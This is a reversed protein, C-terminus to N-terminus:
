SGIEESVWDVSLKKNPFDFALGILFIKKGFSLFKEYYRKKHIQALAVTAKRKCKLEIVFVSQQTEITVDIAGKSTKVESHSNFGLLTGVLHFLSHYYSEEELHLNYPISAILSQLHFVFDAINNEFLAKRLELTIGTIANQDIHSFVTLLNQHMSMHVEYNPYNLRYVTIGEFVVVSQITLYGTQYLLVDLSPNTMSLAALSSTKNLVKDLDELTYQNAKIMTVLFTPTGSHYWYNSLAKDNLFNIISFPNYVSLPSSSFHYGNYWARMDDFIKTESVQWACAVDAVYPGFHRHLEDQTYGVISAYRPEFSIDKVNNLGSFMSEQPYKSVGTIFMFHIYENLSKLATYFPRLVKANAEMNDPYAMQATLPYDYEDILIVVQGHQSALSVVLAELISDTNIRTAAIDIGYSQAVERLADQIRQDLEAGVSNAYRSLDLRIVPHKKWDYRDEQGIWLDKFLEKNGLFIEEFTSILLSKGFRRPRTLLNYKVKSNIVTFAEQTKDIYLCGTKLLDKLNSYGFPLPKKTSM